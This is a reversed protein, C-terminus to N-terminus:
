RAGSEPVEKRANFLLRMAAPVVTTWRRLDVGLGKRSAYRIM